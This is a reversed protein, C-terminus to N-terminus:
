TNELRTRWYREALRLEDRWQMFTPRLSDLAREPDFGDKPKFFSKPFIRITCSSAMSRDWRPLGLNQIDMQRFGEGCHCYAWTATGDDATIFIHGCDQCDECQIVYPLDEHFTLRKSKEARAAEFFDKPLPAYRFSSIMHDIVRVFEEESLDEVAKWILVGRETGFAKEGFESKLRNLHKEYVNLMM